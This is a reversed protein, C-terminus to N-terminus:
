ATAGADVTIVSGTIRSADDSMLFAVVGAVDQPEILQGMASRRAIQARQAEDLAGTLETAAFGPAVANVTIGLKGVDRALSRTFGIMAAKTAGYVSLGVSGTSAVISAMNVIRGAKQQIMARLAYKTLLMPSVTNLRVLAEIQAQSLSTLLGEASGAANNVLGYIPGFETKIHRVHGAIQDVDALDAPHFYMRGDGAASIAAELAPSSKRALVIIRFGDAALRTAIGLGLGRSAGSIIVNRM